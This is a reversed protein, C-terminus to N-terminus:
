YHNFLTEDQSQYSCAPKFNSCRASYRDLDDLDIFFNFLDFLIPSGTFNQFLNGAEKSSILLILFDERETM